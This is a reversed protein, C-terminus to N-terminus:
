RTPPVTSNGTGTANSAGSMGSTNNMEAGSNEMGMGNDAMSGGSMDGSNMDTTGTDGANMGGDSMSVANVDSNMNASNDGAGSSCASLAVACALGTFAAVKVKNM